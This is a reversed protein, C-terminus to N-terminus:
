ELAAQQFQLFLARQIRFDHQHRHRIRDAETLVHETLKESAEIEAAALVEIPVEQLERLQDCPRLIRQAGICRLVPADNAPQDRSFQGLLLRQGFELRQLQRHEFEREIRVDHDIQM